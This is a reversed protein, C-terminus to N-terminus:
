LATKQPPRPTMFKATEGASCATNTDGFSFHTEGTMLSAFAPQGGKDNVDVFDVAALSRLVSFLRLAAIRSMPM